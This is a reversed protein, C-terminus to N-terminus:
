YLSLTLHLPPYFAEQKTFHFGYPTFSPLFGGTLYLSLRLTYLLTFLRRNLLTFPTFDYSTFDCPTFSYPTLNCPTFECPTLDYPTLDYPTLHLTTLDCPTLDYPTLDCPTLDYPTLDCPTLDYPTLDYPTLDRPTCDSRESADRIAGINSFLVQRERKTVVCRDSHDASFEPAMLFVSILINLSKLYSAESTIIEFM